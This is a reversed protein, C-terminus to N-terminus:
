FPGFNIQVSIVMFISALVVWVLFLPLFFKCWKTWPIKSMALAAMFYGSTPSIINTFADGFQFALVATQRTLGILDALPAMIPMTVAAQGSGSPIIINLLDQVIFMGVASVNPHLGQLMSSMGRIITDMINADTLVISIAKSFGIIIGAYVMERAGAVFEQATKDVGLGGVLGIAISLILFLASLEDIYFGFKVVGVVLVAIGILFIGLVIKHRVTFKPIADMDLHFALTKDSEYVGSLTPNAKIKRAYLCLYILTVTVMVVYIIARYGMGSFPPLGAIDQAVGITFANTMTGAFGAGGGVLLVATATISDFGLALCLPVVIPIFALFEEANGIFTGGLSCIFAIVPVILIERGAMKKCITSMGVTLAGTSQMVRLCGGIILMFFIVYGASQMGKPVSLLLDFFSTPNADVSHYSSPDVVDRGSAENFVRNYEGAPVLYSAIGAVIIFIALLVLPDPVKFQRKKKEVIAESM